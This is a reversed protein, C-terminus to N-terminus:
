MIVMALMVLVGVCLLKPVCAMSTTTFESVQLSVYHHYIASTMFYFVGQPNKVQDDSIRSIEPCYCYSNHVSM